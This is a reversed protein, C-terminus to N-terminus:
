ALGALMRREAIANMRPVAPLTPVVQVGISQFVADFVDTFYPGRDRILFTISEARNGLDM